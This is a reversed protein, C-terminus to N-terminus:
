PDLIFRSEGESAILPNVQKGSSRAASKFCDSLANSMAQKFAVRSFRTMVDHRAAEGLLRRKESNHILKLMRDSLLHSDATGVLLGTKGDAVIEPIGGQFPAIIPKGLYMAEILTRPSAEEGQSALVVVDILSYFRQIEDQFDVFFVHSQLRSNEVQAKLREYYVADQPDDPAPSGVIFFKVKETYQCVLRAAEIFEAQGKFPTIRGVVGFSLSDDELGSSQRWRAADWHSDPEQWDPVPNPILWTKSQLDPRYKLLPAAASKSCTIIRTVGLALVSLAKAVTQSSFVNHLHWFVPRRTLFGLAAACAFTRPGNAFILDFRNRLVTGTLSLSCLLTRPGFRVMDWLTKSGSHYNGLPLDIVPIGSALLLRKFDGEGALAVTADFQSADLVALTDMLVRQGGGLSGFQDLFLIKKRM